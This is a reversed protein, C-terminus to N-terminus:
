LVSLLFGAQDLHTVQRSSEAGVQGLQQPIELFVSVRCCDNAMSVAVEWGWKGRYVLRARLGLGRRGHKAM